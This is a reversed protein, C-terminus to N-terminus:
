CSGQLVETGCSQMIQDLSKGAKAGAVTVTHHDDVVLLLCVHLVQANSLLRVTTRAPNLQERSM